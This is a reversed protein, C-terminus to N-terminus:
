SIWVARRRALTPVPAADLETLLFDDYVIEAGGYGAGFGFKTGAPVISGANWVAASGHLAGGSDLVRATVKLGEKMLSLYYDVGTSLAAPSATAKDSSTGAVIERVRVQPTGAVLLAVLSTESAGDIDRLGYVISNTTASMRFKVRLDFDAPAATLTVHAYASNNAPRTATTGDGRIGGATYWSLSLTGGLGNNPTRGNISTGDTVATFDDSTLITAM